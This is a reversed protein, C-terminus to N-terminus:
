LFTGKANQQYFRMLNLFFLLVTPIKTGCPEKLPGRKNIILTLSKLLTLIFSKSRINASMDKKDREFKSLKFFFYYYYYLTLM